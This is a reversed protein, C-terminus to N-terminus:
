CDCPVGRAARPHRGLVAHLPRRQTGGGISLTLCRSLLVTLFTAKKIPREMTVMPITPMRIGEKKIQIECRKKAEAAQYTSATTRTAKPTSRRETAFLELIALVRRTTAKIGSSAPHSYREHADVSIPVHNLL